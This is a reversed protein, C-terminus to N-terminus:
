GKDEIKLETIVPVPLDQDEPPTFRDPHRLHRYASLSGLFLLTYVIASWEFHSSWLTDYIYLTALLGSVMTAVLARRRETIRRSPSEDFM